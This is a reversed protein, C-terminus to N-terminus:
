HPRRRGWVFYGVPLLGASSVVALATAWVPKPGRVEEAPRRRLDVLAGVRLAGDVVAACVLLRRTREDLDNWSTM